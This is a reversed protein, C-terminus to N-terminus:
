LWLVKRRLDLDDRLAASPGTHIVAGRELAVTKDSRRWRWISITISSSSRSM